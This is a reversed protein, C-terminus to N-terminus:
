NLSAKADHIYKVQDVDSIRKPIVSTYFSTVVKKLTVKLKMLFMPSYVLGRAFLL